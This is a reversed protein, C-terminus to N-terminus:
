EIVERVFYQPRNQTEKYIRYVYEGIVGLFTLQIAGLFYISLVTSSWGLPAIDVFKSVISYITALLIFIVGFIGLRLCIKIPWNSFSFIADAALIMLKRMNMKAKGISRDPRKYFIQGQRFGVFARMGPLFRNKEKMSLLANLVTRRMLCFNGSDEIAGIESMRDFVWHFLKISTRKIINEKREERKGVVVDYSNSELEKFLEPLLEPPDQLDGDMMGIIDGKAYNLGATFASQHGFNRSLSVIKLNPVEEKVAKLLALTNDSSGDDVCVIEYDSKITQLAKDARSVLERVLLEENFLPIVISLM